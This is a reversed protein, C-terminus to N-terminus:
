PFQADNGIVVYPGFKNGSGIVVKNWNIIATKHVLNSRIKKYELM